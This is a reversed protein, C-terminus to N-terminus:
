GDKELRDIWESYGIALASIAFPLSFWFTWNKFFYILFAYPIALLMTLCWKCTLLYALNKGEVALLNDDEDYLVGARERFKLFIKGPGREFSLLSTLRWLTLSFVVLEMWTM